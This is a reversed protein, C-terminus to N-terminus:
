FDARWQLYFFIEQNTETLEGSAEFSPDRLSLPETFPLTRDSWRGSVEFNLQYRRNWLYTIRLGPEIIVQDGQLSSSRNSVAVRPNLRFKEAFPFRWDIKATHTDARYDSFLRYSLILADSARVISSGTLSISTDIQTTAPLAVVNASSVSSDIDTFATVLQASWRPSLTRTLGASMHQVDSTRNRALTRLQADSYTQLLQDITAVPQGILANTTSIFPMAYLQFRAYAHWRKSFRASLNFLANNIVNYSVDYDLLATSHWWEGQWRWRTGIAQRDWIGGVQQLHTYFNADVTGIIDDIDTSLGIFQRQTDSAYHPNDVALGATVNVRVSDLASWSGRAGDFLGMIGDNYLSQRGIKLQMGNDPQSIEIYARRVFPEDDRVDDRPTSLMNQYGASVFSRVSYLDAQYEAGMDAYTVLATRDIADLETDAFESNVTQHWIDQSLSGFFHWPSKSSSMTRGRPEQESALLTDLRQQIRQRDANDAFRQLWTGYREAALKPHGSMQYALALYELAQAHSSVNSNELLRTYTDIAPNYNQDLLLGRAQQLLVAVEKDSLLPRKAVIQSTSAIGRRNTISIKHTDSGQSVLFTGNETFSLQLEIERGQDVWQAGLLTEGANSLSPMKSSSTMLQRCASLPLLKIRLTKDVTQLDHTLYRITCGFSIELVAAVDDYALESVLNAAYGCTSWPLVLIVAWRRIARMVRIM